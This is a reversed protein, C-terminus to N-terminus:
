DDMYFIKPVTQGVQPDSFQEILPRVFDPDVTTDNNLFIIFESKAQKIIHRFGANNGGAYGLNNELKLIEVQPFRSKIATISGDTSGNDVVLIHAKFYIEDLSKLCELILDKGNWNLVIITVVPQRM